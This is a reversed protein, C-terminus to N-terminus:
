IKQETVIDISATAEDLVIVKNKRLIARCICLLQREGASLNTGGENIKYYIGKKQRNAETMRERLDEDAIESVVEETLATDAEKDKDKEASKGEPERTLLDQLGARILLAEIDASSYQQFPDM